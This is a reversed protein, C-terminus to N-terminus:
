IGAGDVLKLRNPEREDILMKCDNFGQLYVSSVASRLNLEKDFLTTRDFLADKFVDYSREIAVDILKPDVKFQETERRNM